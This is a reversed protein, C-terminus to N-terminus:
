FLYLVTFFNDSYIVNFTMILVSYKDEGIPALIEWPDGIYSGRSLISRSLVLINPRGMYNSCISTITGIYIIDKLCRSPYIPIVNMGTSKEVSMFFYYAVTRLDGWMIIEDNDSFSMIYTLSHKNNTLYHFETYPDQSLIMNSSFVITHLTLFFAFLVGILMRVYRCNVNSTYEWLIHFVYLTTMTYGLTYMFGHLGPYGVFIYPLAELLFTLIISFFMIYFYRVKKKALLDHVLIYVFVSLLFYHIIKLTSSSFTLLVQIPGSATLAFSKGSGMVRQLFLELFNQLAETIVVEGRLHLTLVLYLNMVLLASTASIISILSKIIFERGLNLDNSNALMMRKILISLILIIATYMILVYSATYYTFSIVVSILALSTADGLIRSKSPRLILFIGLFFLSYGLAIYYSNLYTYLSLLWLYIASAAIFKNRNGFVQKLIIYIMLAQLLFPLPIRVISELPIGSVISQIANLTYSVFNWSYFNPHSEWGMVGFPYLEIRGTNVTHAALAATSFSFPDMIDGLVLLLSLTLSFLLALLLEIRFSTPM